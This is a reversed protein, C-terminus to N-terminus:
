ADLLVREAIGAAYAICEGCPTLAVGTDVGKLERCVISGCAAKFEDSIRAAQAYTEVKSAPADVNGDSTVLGAVVGAGLLAGCTGDYNGVGRGLGETMRFLEVEDRGLQEAFACAVSQACNYGRDHRAVAAESRASM